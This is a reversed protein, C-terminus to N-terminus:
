YDWDKEKVWFPESEAYVYDYNDYSVIRITYKGPKGRIAHIDVKGHGKYGGYKKTREKKAKYWRHSKVDWFIIIFKEPSRDKYSWWYKVYSHKGGKYEYKTLYIGDNNRKVNSESSEGTPSM